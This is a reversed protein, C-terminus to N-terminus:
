KEGIHKIKGLHDIMVKTGTMKDVSRILIMCKDNKLTTELHHRFCYNKTALKQVRYLHRSILPWNDAKMFDIQEPDLGFVFMNNIQMSTIFRHGEGPSRDIVPLGQKVREVAEWFTVVKEYKSGDPSEYLAVHHNNRTHVFDKPNGKEDFHIPQLTVPGFVRVSRIPIRKEENMWVPNNELDSFAKKPDNGNDELRKKLIKKIMSDVLDDTKNFNRDLKVRYVFKPEFITIQTIPIHKRENSFIPDEKLTRPSFAKTFDQEYKSLHNELLLREDPFAMLIFTEPTIKKDISIIKYRNIKGYVTEKHLYGRPTYTLQEIEGHKTKIRNIQRSVVKRNTKFSVLIGTIAKKSQPRITSFPPVIRWGKVESITEKFVDQNGGVIAHLRNLKQIIKQKTCAVVIADIAHNRHDERKTWDLIREVQNGTHDTDSYVKGMQRYKELNLEELITNLGWENRLYDTVSGTTIVVSRCITKLRTTIERSIYQSERLQREIFDEPIESSKMMLKDFKGKKIKKDNYLQRVRAKYEELTVEGKYSMFDFATSKSKELNLDRECLTKNGFSDDFLLSRPIIHEVDIKATDFLDSKQIVRGTYVSIGGTEQWLKYKIIDKRSVKRFEWETTLIKEIRSNEKENERISLTADKREKANQKLQRALEVRIEDPRGYEESELFNNILTVVQNCIKEVVPNRFENRKVTDLSDELIRSERETITETDTHNYGVELCAEHYKKGERLFPLLKRIARSSLSGYASTYGIKSIEIAQEETLGFREILAPILHYNDESSYVLHWLQYLPELDPRSSDADFRTIEKLRNENLSSQRLVKYFKAKTINGEIKEFNCIYNRTPKCNLLQLLKTQTIHENEDLYELIIRRVDDQLLIIEGDRTTIQLNNIKTLTNYLQFIPSSKPAVKHHKEYRCESVLGKQSKLRRQYYIIRDRIIIRNQETLVEPYFDKQFDWIANFEHIYDKRLFAKERIKFDPDPNELNELVKRYLFQGITMGTLNLENSRDIIEQTFDTESTKVSKRNSKYGRRQNLHFFIRGIEVLTLRERLAKDRLGYLELASIRKMLVDNPMMGISGLMKLLDHRRLKYRQNNRRITRFTRRDANLTVERGEIFQTEEDGMPIIRVGASHIHNLEQNDEHEHVFAWGISGTGIDLGLIKKM